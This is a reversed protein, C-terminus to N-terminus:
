NDTEHPSLIPSYDYKPPRLSSREQSITLMSFNSYSYRKYTGARALSGHVKGM